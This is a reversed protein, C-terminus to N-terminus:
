RPSVIRLRILRSNQQAPVVETDVAPVKSIVHCDDPINWFRIINDSKKADKAASVSTTGGLLLFLNLAGSM